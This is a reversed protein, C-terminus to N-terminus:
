KKTITAQIDQIAEKYYTAAFQQYEVNRVLLDGHLIYGWSCEFDCYFGKDWFQSDTHPANDARWKKDLYYFWFDTIPPWQHTPDGYARGSAWYPCIITMYCGKKLVRYVENLLFVRQESNLHELFHAAYVEEVTDDQFPLQEVGLDCVHDVGEFNIKDVGLFGERKRSGCGIDIKISM